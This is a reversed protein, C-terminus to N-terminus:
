KEFQRNPEYPRPAQELYKRLTRRDRAVRRATETISLSVARAAPRTDGLNRAVSCERAGPASRIRGAQDAGILFM